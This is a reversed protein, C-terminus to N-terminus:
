NISFNSAIELFACCGNRASNSELIEYPLQERSAYYNAFRNCVPCGHLFIYIYMSRTHFRATYNRSNSHRKKKKKKKKKKLDLKNESLPHPKFNCTFNSSFTAAVYIIDFGPQSRFILLTVLIECSIRSTTQCNAAQQACFTFLFFPPLVFSFLHM